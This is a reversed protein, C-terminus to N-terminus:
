GALAPRGARAEHLRVRAECGRRGDDRNALGLSGGHAEAIQRSLVLGIGSGDPKTTFFPVFLNATDALGPGDDSVTLELTGGHLRWSVAVGAGAGAALAADAANRVLNILLQDLQDGDALITAPDGPRVAIPLRRELAVVRDVWAAVDVPALSPRPLRALRAYAALFRALGGARRTVVDLGRALDDELDSPREAPPRRLQERLHEAISQIPALSNNIEHGLVRVLRQWALREEERLARRLDTLVILTHSLGRQRFRTRRLEWPGADGQFLSLLTRPAEGELCASLGLAAADRGIPHAAGDRTLLREAARNALRLHGGADFALVAVDIEEMVTRLLADAEFAGLRQERLTDALGNIERMVGSLADDDVAAAATRGRLSFDEERMAGLLASVVQLARTVRAHLATLGGVCALVLLAGLTWRTKPSHEGVALLVLAVLLAPVAAAGALLVM